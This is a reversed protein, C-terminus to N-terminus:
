YLPLPGTDSIYSSAGQISLRLKYYLREWQDAYGDNQQIDSYNVSVDGVRESTVRAKIYGDIHMLHATWARQLFEFNSDQYSIGDNQIWIKAMDLYSQIVSEDITSLDPFLSKFKVANIVSM